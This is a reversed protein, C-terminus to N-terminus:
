LREKLADLDVQRLALRMILSRSAGRVGRKKAEDLLRDLLEVDDEYFSFTVLRYTQGEALPRRHGRGRRVRVPRESSPATTSSPRAYLTELLPSALPDDGLGTDDPHRKTM